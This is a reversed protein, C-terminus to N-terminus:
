QRRIVRHWVEPQHSEAWETIIEWATRAIVTEPPGILIHDHVYANRLSRITHMMNAQHLPIIGRDALASIRAALTDTTGAFKHKASLAKCFRDLQNRLDEISLPGDEPQLRATRSAQTTSSPMAPGEQRAGPIINLKKERDCLACRGERRVLKLEGQLRRCIQNVQNRPEVRTEKSLCDDCYAKSTAELFELITEPNNM